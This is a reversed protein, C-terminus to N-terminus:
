PAPVRYSGLGPNEVFTAFGEQQYTSLRGRAHKKTWKNGTDLVDYVEFADGGEVVSGDARREVRMGRGLRQLTEIISKGGAGLTVSRLEPIDIGENFVSSCVLVQFHGQVLRRILSKRYAISHSGWVFEAQIGAKLLMKTLLKGHAVHKVFLLGPKAARLSLGVLADNRLKSREILEGYVGAWTVAKAEQFVEVLRVTPRALVGREILLETKIRYVVPGLAGIAYLSRRDGRALPTGSMGVRYYAPVRMAVDFFSSAPLTHAEDVVLGQANYLLNMMRVYAPDKPGHELARNMAAQVSQFTVAVLQADQPVEWRGELVRGAQLGPSRLEYRTAMDDALQGRHVLALWRCPMARTLGVMIETKGGGTPVWLIGRHKRKIAEVAALQYDRLWALDANPDVPVPPTRTDIVDVTMEDKLASRVIGPVFGAPFSNNYKHLLTERKVEGSGRTAFRKKEDVFSLYDAVWEREDPTSKTLKGHTNGLEIWM